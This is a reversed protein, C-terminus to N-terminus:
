GPAYGTEISGDELGQNIEDIKDKVEQPVDGDFDHFPALGVGGFFNGAPFEGDAAMQILDAVGPTILKMASSVLCSHAEPVTEWQDSDVGICYVGDNSAVEILAGNGTKGGAGFVVDAGQTVAQAATTAGWEPDTFAVDMGGPHYTSIVEIGPNIAKAGAEYGEKYAVVPPVLDTGLVAAIKGSESLSAALAGALYGARDENFVLGAVNDVPEVQFQDVGIFKVDPYEAAATLTAEGLAFGVTVIV